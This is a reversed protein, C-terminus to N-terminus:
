GGTGTQPTTGSTSGTTGTRWGATGTRSGAAGGASATTGSSASGTGVTRRAGASGAGPSFQDRRSRTGTAILRVNSATASHTRPTMNMGTHSPTSADSGSSFKM